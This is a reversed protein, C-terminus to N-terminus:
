CPTRLVLTLALGFTMAAPSYSGGGGAAPLPCRTAQHGDEVATVPNTALSAPHQALAHAARCVGAYALPSAGPVLPCPARVGCRLPITPGRRHTGPQQPISRPTRARPTSAPMLHCRLVQRGLVAM